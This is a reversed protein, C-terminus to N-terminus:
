DEATTRRHTTTEGLDFQDKRVVKKHLNRRVVKLIAPYTGEPGQKFAELASERNDCPIFDGNPDVLYFDATFAPLDTERKPSPSDFSM